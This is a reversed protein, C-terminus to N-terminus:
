EPDAFNGFTVSLSGTATVTNGAQDHGYFTIEAITAIFGPASALARLPSEQKASHRVLDFGASADGSGTVTVTIAGDFGFPVDVGPTNRGDARRFQVRYRTITVANIPSPGTAVGPQGPDRLQLRFTVEGLDNFITPVQVTQTGVTQDVLTLVDSLVTSGMEDPSAGSAGQLSMIVIQSPSRSDRVVDGCSASLMVALALATCGLTRTWPIRQTM